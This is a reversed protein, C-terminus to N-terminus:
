RPRGVVEGECARALERAHDAVALDARELERAREDLADLAEVAGEARDDHAVEITREGGRLARVGLPASSSRQVAYGHRDLLREVDRAERRRPAHGREGAVDRRDVRVDDRPQTRRARDDEPLCVHREHQAVELGVVIEEARRVVRPVPRAARAARRASGRGRERGPEGRQLDAGIEAPRDAVRGVVAPDVPVLRRPADDRHAPVRQRRDERRRVHGHRARHRPARFIEGDRELDEGARLAIM